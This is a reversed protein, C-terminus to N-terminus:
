PCNVTIRCRPKHKSLLNYNININFVAKFHSLILFVEVFSSCSHHWGLIKPNGNRIQPSCSQRASSPFEIFVYRILPIETHNLIRKKLTSRSTSPARSTPRTRGTQREDPAHGLRIRWQGVYRRQRLWVVELDEGFCQESAEVQDDRTECSFLFVFAFPPKLKSVNASKFRTVRVTRVQIFRNCLRAIVLSISRPYLM